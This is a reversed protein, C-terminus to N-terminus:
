GDWHAGQVRESVAAHAESKDAAGHAVETTHASAAREAEVAAALPFAVLLMESCARRAYVGRWVSCAGRDSARTSALRRTRLPSQRISCWPARLDAM